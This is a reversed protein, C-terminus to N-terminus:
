HGGGSSMPATATSATEERSGTRRPARGPRRVSPSSPGLSAQAIRDRYQDTKLATEQPNSIFGIEVLVAPMTAGMLVRFPAQKIGRNRLDLEANLENQIVEALDSSEELYRTQALDCLVMALDGSDQAISSPDVGAANNEM